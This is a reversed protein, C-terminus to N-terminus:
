HVVRLGAPRKRHVYIRLGLAALAIVAFPATVQVDRGTVAKGVYAFGFAFWLAYIGLKHLKKWNAGMTRMANDTSTLVMLYMLAYVPAGLLPVPQGKLKFYTVFAVLHFTHCLAFGLGWWRRDRVLARSWGAPWMRALASASFALILLPFGARATYRSALLYGDVQDTGTRLGYTMAGLGLVLGLLLPWRKM